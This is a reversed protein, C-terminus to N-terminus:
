KSMLSNIKTYHGHNWKYFYFFPFMWSFRQVDVQVHVATSQFTKRIRVDNDRLIQTFGHSLREHYDTELPELVSPSVASFSEQHVLVAPKPESDLKFRSVNFCGASLLRHTIVDRCFCICTESFM